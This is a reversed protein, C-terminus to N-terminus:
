KIVDKSDYGPHMVIDLLTEIGQPTNDLAIVKTNLAIDLLNFPHIWQIVAGNEGCHRHAVEVVQDGLQIGFTTSM